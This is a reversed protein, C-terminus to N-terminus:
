QVKNLQRKLNNNPCATKHNPCSFYVNCKEQGSYNHQCSQRHIYRLFQSIIFVNVTTPNELRVNKVKTRSEKHSERIYFFVSFLVITYLHQVVVHKLCVYDNSPIMIDYYQWFFLILYFVIYFQPVHTSNCYQKSSKKYTLPTCLRTDKTQNM